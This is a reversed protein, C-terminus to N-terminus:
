GAVSVTRTSTQPLCYHNWRLTLEGTEIKISHYIYFFAKSKLFCMIFYNPLLSCQKQLENEVPDAHWTPSLFLILCHSVAIWHAMVSPSWYDGTHLSQLGSPYTNNAYVCACIGTRWIWSFPLAKGLQPESSAEQPRYASISLPYLFHRIDGEWRGLVERRHLISRSLDALGAETWYISDVRGRPLLSAERNLQTYYACQAELTSCSRWWLTWVLREADTHRHLQTGTHRDDRWDGMVGTLTWDSFGHLSALIGQILKAVKRYLRFCHWISFLLFAHNWNQRSQERM